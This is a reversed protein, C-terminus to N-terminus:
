GWKQIVRSDYGCAVGEKKGGGWRNDLKGNESSPKGKKKKAAPIFGRPREGGGGRRKQSAKKEGLSSVAAPKEQAFPTKQL